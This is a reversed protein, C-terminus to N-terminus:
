GYCLTFARTVLSENHKECRRWEIQWSHKGLVDRALSRLAANLVDSSKTRSVGDDSVVSSTASPVQSVASNSESSRSLKVHRSKPWAFRGFPYKTFVAGIM